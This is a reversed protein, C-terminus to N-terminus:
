GGWASGKWFAGHCTGKASSQPLVASSQWIMTPSPWDWSTNSQCALRAWHPEVVHQVNQCFLEPDLEFPGRLFQPQVEQSLTVHFQPSTLQALTSERSGGRRTWHRAVQQCSAWFIHSHKLGVFGARSTMADLDGHDACRQKLALGPM